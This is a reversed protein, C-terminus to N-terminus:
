ILIFQKMLSHMELTDQQDGEGGKEEERAVCLFGCLFHPLLFRV